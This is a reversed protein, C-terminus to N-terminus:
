KLNLFINYYVSNCYDLKSHVISEAITSATKSDLYPRICRLQRLIAPSLFHRSRILHEDFIFGLNRAFHTTNLSSNDIKSLQQKLGVILFETKSSNLTLIFNASRCEFSQETEFLRTRLRFERTATVKM